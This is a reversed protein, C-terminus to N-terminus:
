TENEHESMERKELKTAASASTFFRACEDPISSTCLKHSLVVRHAETM